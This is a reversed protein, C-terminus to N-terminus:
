PEAPMARNRGSEKARYLAADARQLQVSPEVGPAEAVCYGLSLTVVGAARSFAHPLALERVALVLSEALATAAQVDAVRALVAFEEGGYRCIQADAHPLTASLAQAVKHLCVDGAPHGYHDNYAKFDDIDAIMVALVGYGDFARCQEALREGFERRNAIGTLADTRAMVDLQRNVAALESTRNAVESELMAKRKRLARIRLWPALVLLSM